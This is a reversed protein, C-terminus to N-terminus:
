LECMNDRIEEEVGWPVKKLHPFPLKSGIFFKGWSLSFGM